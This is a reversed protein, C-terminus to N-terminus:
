YFSAAAAAAFQERLRQVITERLLSNKGVVTKKDLDVFVILRGTSSTETHNFTVSYVEEKNYNKDIVSKIEGNVSVKKVTSDKPSVPIREKEENTLSGFAVMEISIDNKSEFLGCGTMTLTILFLITFFGLKNM